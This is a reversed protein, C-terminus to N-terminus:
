KMILLKKTETFGSATLRYFYAGSSFRSADFTVTRYGAEQHGDVLREIERGLLDLVSLTVQGGAPLHYGITTVPNFPNPYNQNLAFVGPVTGPDEDIDTLINLHVPITMWERLPDNSQLTLYTTYEGSDRACNRYEVLIELSDGPAVVGAGPSVQTCSDTSLFGTSIVYVENIMPDNLIISESEAMDTNVFFGNLRDMMRLGVVHDRMKTPWSLTMPYNQSKTQFRLVFTDVQSPGLYPRYDASLGQDYCVNEPRPNLFRVDFSEDPPLPPLQIEGYTEDVCPTADPRIGASRTVHTGQNDNVTIPIDQERSAATTGEPVIKLSLAGTGNNKVTLSGRGILRYDFSVTITDESLSLVPPNVGSGDLEVLLLSDLFDDTRVELVGPSPGTGDPSFAIGVVRQSGRSLTFSHAGILLYDPNDITLSTVQLVDPRDNRLTLYLTDSHGISTEGFRVTDSSIALVSLDTVYLTVPVRVEPRGPDNSTIIVEGHYTGPPLPSSSVTFDKIVSEGPPVFLEETQLTLWPGGTGRAGFFARLMGRGENTITVLRTASSNRHMRLIFSDPDVTIDPPYFGRGTVPVHVTPHSTDTGTVVVVLTDSFTGTDPPAFTVFINRSVFPGLKLNAPSVTFIGSDSPSVSVTISDKGRNKVTFFMQNEYGTPASDFDVSAPSIGFIPPGIVRLRLPINKMGAAPDNTTITFGSSYLGSGISAADVGVTIGIASDAACFGSDPSVSLWSPTLGITSGLWATGGHLSGYRANSTMESVFDGDGENLQWYGALGPESGRLESHMAGRIQNQTRAVNWIRIEDITGTFASGFGPPDNGCYLTTSDSTNMTSSGSGEFEGDVYLISQNGRCTVAVHYWRDPVIYSRGGISSGGTTFYVGNYSVFLRVFKGQMGWSGYGLLTGTSYYNSFQTKFWLEITRDSNGAPLGKAPAEMVDDAGDFRLAYDQDSHQEDIRFSLMGLGTNGITFVRTTSDGADMSLGLSDPAVTMVPPHVAQAHVPINVIM